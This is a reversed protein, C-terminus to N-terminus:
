DIKLTMASLRSVEFLKDGIGRCGEEVKLGGFKDKKPVEQWRPVTMAIRGGLSWDIFLEVRREDDYNLAIKQFFVDDTM